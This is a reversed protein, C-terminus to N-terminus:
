YAMRCTAAATSQRGSAQLRVIRRIDIQGCGHAPRPVCSANHVALAHLAASIHCRHTDHLGPQHAHICGVAHCAVGLLSGKGEIELQEGMGRAEQALADNQQAQVIALAQIILGVGVNDRVRARSLHPGSVNGDKHSASRATTGPLTERSCAVEWSRAALHWPLPWLSQLTAAVSADMLVSHCARIGIGLVTSNSSTWEPLTTSAQTRLGPVM